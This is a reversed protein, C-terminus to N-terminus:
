VGDGKATGFEVVEGMETMPPILEKKEGSTEAQQPVIFGKRCAGV